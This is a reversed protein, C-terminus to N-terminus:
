AIRTATFYVNQVNTSAGSTAVLYWSLSSSSTVRSVNTTGYAPALVISACNSDFNGVTASTTTNSISLQINTSPAVFQINGNLLWVGAVPLVIKSFNNYTGATTSTPLGTTSGITTYGLQTGSTILSPTYNLVIPANMQILSAYLVLLGNGTTSTGGSSLIRADYDVVNGSSHFDIYANNTSSAFELSTSGNAIYALPTNINVQSGTMTVINSTNGINVAGTTTGTAINVSSSGTGTAINIIGSSTSGTMINCTGTTSTGNMINTNSANSVGNNIHTNAGASLYDGDGLHLVSTRVNATGVNITGGTINTAINMNSNSTQGNVISTLIGANFTEIATATDPYTKRLYLLNATGVTLVASSSLTTFVSNDFIPLSEIPPNYSAM